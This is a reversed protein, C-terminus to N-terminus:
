RNVATAVVAAGVGNDINVCCVNSACSNLMALLPAIGGAGAGYGISTPVAVVPAEVLGGVVSALAGEMGAVAIVVRAGQLVEVKRLLRHIGAVGVDTLLTPEHGLYRCTVRAEEAVTQDATGASVIVIGERKERGRPLLVMTRATRDHVARPVARKVARAQAADVRTVLVRGSRGAIEKAIRATQAPTKGPGYVIEPRGTRHERHHDITAFDLEAFPPSARLRREAAAPTIEGKRVQELLTRVARADM